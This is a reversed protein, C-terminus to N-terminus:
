SPGEDYRYREERRKAMFDTEDEEGSPPYLARLQMYNQRIEKIFGAVDRAAVEGMDLQRAMYLMAQALSGERVEPPFEDLNALVSTVMPGSDEPLQEAIQGCQECVYMGKRQAYMRDGAEIPAGCKGCNGDKKASFWTGM